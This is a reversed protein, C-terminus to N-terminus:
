QNCNKCNNVKQEILIFRDKLASFKQNLANFDSQKTMNDLKDFLAKFNDDIRKIFAGWFAKIIMIAIGFIATILWFLIQWIHNEM